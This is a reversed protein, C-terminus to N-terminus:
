GSGVAFDTLYIGTVAQPLPMRRIRLMMLRQVRALGPEALDEADASRAATIAQDRLRRRWHVMEAMVDDGTGPAFVVHLTFKINAIENHTPRFNRIYIEGIEFTRPLTPDYPVAAAEGHGGGHGGGHDEAPAAGHGSAMAVGGLCCSLAAAVFFQTFRAARALSKITVMNMTATNRGTLNVQIDTIRQPTGAQVTSTPTGRTTHRNMATRGAPMAVKATAAGAMAAATDVEM